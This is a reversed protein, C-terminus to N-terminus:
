LEELNALVPRPYDPSVFDWGFAAAVQAPVSHSALVRDITLSRVGNYVSDGIAMLEPNTM